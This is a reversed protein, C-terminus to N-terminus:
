CDLLPLDYYITSSGSPDVWWMEDNDIMTNLVDVSPRNVILDIGQEHALAELSRLDFMCSVYVSNNGERLAKSMRSKVSHIAVLVDRQKM